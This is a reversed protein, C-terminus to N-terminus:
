GFQVNMPSRNAPMPPVHTDTKLKGVALHRDKGAFPIIPSLLRVLCVRAEIFRNLPINGLKFRFLNGVVIHSRGLIERDAM